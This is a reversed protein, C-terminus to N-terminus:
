ELAWVAKCALNHAIVGWHETTCEACDLHFNIPDNFAEFLKRWLIKEEKSLKRWIAPSCKTVPKRM